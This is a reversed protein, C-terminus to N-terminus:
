NDKKMRTSTMRYIISDRGPDMTGIALSIALLVFFFIFMGWFIINFFVPFNEDYGAVINFENRAVPGQTPAQRKARAHAEATTLAVVLARGEYVKDATQVLETISNKLLKVGEIYANSDAAHSKALANLSVRVVAGTPLHNDANSLLSTLGDLIALQDLFDQDAKNKKPKLYSTTRNETPVIVGFSTDLYSSVDTKLDLDVVSGDRLQINHLAESLPDGDGYVQFAKADKLDLDGVGEVAVAVVGVAVNFPDNIVLGDFYEEDINTPVSYGLSAAIVDEVAEPSLVSEGKFEIAKPTKLILLQNANVPFLYSFSFFFRYKRPMVDQTLQM